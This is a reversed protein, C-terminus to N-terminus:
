DDLFYEVIWSGCHPLPWVLVVSRLNQCADELDPDQGSGNGIEHIASAQKSHQYSPGFTKNLTFLMTFSEMM